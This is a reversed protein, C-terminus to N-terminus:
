RTRIRAHRWRYYSFIDSWSFTAHTKKFAKITDFGPVSFYSRESYPPIKEVKKEQLNALARLTVTVSIEFALLYDAFLSHRTDLPIASQALVDGSDIEEVMTHVSVGFEKEGFQMAWFVPLVGGYKPLLATHRNICAINPLRLLEGRFIQGQSSLVVDINLTGLYELHERSNVSACGRLPIRYQRAIGRLSLSHKMAFLDLLRLWATNFAMFLFGLPGWLALQQKLFHHFGKKHRDRSLTIGVVHDHETDLNQLLGHLYRPHFLNEDSLVCYVRM